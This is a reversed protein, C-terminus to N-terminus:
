PWLCVCWPLQCGAWRGAGYSASFVEVARGCDSRERGRDGCSIADTCGDGRHERHDVSEGTASAEMGSVRGASVGNRWRHRSVATTRRDCRRVSDGGDQRGVLRLGKPRNRMLEDDLTQLRREGLERAYACGARYAEQEWDMGAEAHDESLWEHVRLKAM